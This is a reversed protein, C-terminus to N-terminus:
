QQPITSSPAGDTANGNIRNNGFSIIQGLTGVRLGLGNGTVTVDTIRTITAFSGNGSSVGVVSNQSAGCDTLTMEAPANRGIAVFGSVNGNANTRSVTAKINDEVRLGFITTNDNLECRDIDVTSAAAASIALVGATNFRVRTNALFLKSSSSPEFDVGNGLFEEITCNEVHLSGAGLFRIGNQAQMDGNINLGRLTVLSGPGANVIIASQGPAAALVGAQFPTGDITISKTITVAGFGGPDLVDIEGFTATKSIAGAFTKCPATRSCPNADDGVGSVWTRTAQAFALSAGLLLFLCAAAFPKRSV